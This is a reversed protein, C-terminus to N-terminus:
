GEAGECEVVGFADVGVEFLSCVPCRYVVLNVREVGCRVHAEPSRTRKSGVFSALRRGGDACALPAEIPAAWTATVGQASCNRAGRGGVLPMGWSGFRVLPM